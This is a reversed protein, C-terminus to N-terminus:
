YITNEVSTLPRLVNSVIMRPKDQVSAALWAAQGKCLPVLRTTSGPVPSDVAAEAKSLTM